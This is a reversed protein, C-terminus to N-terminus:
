GPRHQNEAYARREGPTAKRASIMRIVEEGDEDRWAYAVILVVGSIAGLTQSREEDDVIRGLISLAYQDDFVL